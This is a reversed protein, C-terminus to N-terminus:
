AFFTFFIGKYYLPVVSRFTKLLKITTMKTSVAIVTSNPRMWNLLYATRGSVTPVIILRANTQNAVTACSIACAEAANVPM